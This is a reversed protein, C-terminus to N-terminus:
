AVASGAALYARWGGHATIDTAGELGAAECLFGHVREGGELEISGLGLPAPIGALFDGVRSAPLSWMEVEIAAGPAGEPQRILGPRLPPGGALAHLRYRPATRGAGLFRGGRETLQRNLPLGSMHAGCVALAIEDGAVAPRFPAPPDAALPAKCDSREVDDAHVAREIRAATAALLGDSGAPGILTLGGGPRGDSRPVAPVAMACLSLLNVFNTYTGLNSNPTVPDDALDQLSYVTPLTPVCLMDAAALLPACRRKLTELRYIGRFADAASLGEAVGVIQRTVPHVAGPDRRLLEEIVTYREAVWAGEYLMQAVDYLPAFDVPVLTAGTAQLVALSDAFARAQVADGFFRVSAADPVAIRPAPLPTPLPGITLPRSWPDAADYGAAVQFVAYADAVSTAFISITDLSRCAPVVGRSSLAGLSPKLGVIDNLAAPVRGSGATDTGLSFPVLRHGVAVASGASSGGPVLMPDLANRPVPYPTRVGVLGTAFQDLNTKGVPIAGAARLRAVVFADADPRYAYAPCAATTPMGAVDINDKVAFPVGWLPKTPDFRGLADAAALLGAEGPLHLFIGPDDIAHLRALLAAIMRRPTMGAAYAARLDALTTPLSTPM